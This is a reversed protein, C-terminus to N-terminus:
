AVARRGARFLTPPREVGKLTPSGAPTWEVAEPAQERVEETVVVGGPPAAGTVRSAVNV